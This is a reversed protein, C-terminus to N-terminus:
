KNRSEYDVYATVVEGNEVVFDISYLRNVFEMEFIDMKNAVRKIMEESLDRMMVAILLDGAGESMDTCLPLKNRENALVM